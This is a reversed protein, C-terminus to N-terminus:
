DHSPPSPPGERLFNLASIVRDRCERSKTLFDYSREKFILSFCQDEPIKYENTTYFQFRQTKPGVIIASCDCMPLIIFNQKVIHYLGM